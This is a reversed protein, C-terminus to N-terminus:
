ARRRRRVAAGALMCVGGAMLAWTSPEPVPTFNLMLNNGSQSVSFNSAPANSFYNTNIAFDSANFGGMITLPAASVLTWSYSSSVNFTSAATGTELGDSAVGVVQITFPQSPTATVNLAGDVTISSYDIGPAGTPNMISFQMGGNPGFGVTANSGFVLSGIVFTGGAGFTGRGGVVGGVVGSAGAFTITDSTTPAITGYGGISAGPNVVIQNHITVGTDVAFAGGSNLILNGSGLASPNSAILLTDANVTTTGSFSSNTGSLDLEGSTTGPEITTLQVNGAGTIMGIYEPDDNLQFTLTTASPIHITSDFGTSNLLGVITPMSGAAFYLDTGAMSLGNITPSMSTFNIVSGTQASLTGTGLASNTGVTLTTGNVNTGGSYSNCGELDTPGNVELAGPGCYDSINGFLTLTSASNSGGVTATGGEGNTGIAIPNYVSINTSLPTTLTTGDGLTLTGTGLPSSIIDGASGVGSAGVVLTTNGPEVTVGGCFTSCGSTLTLSNTADFGVEINAYGSIMGSLTLMNGGYAAEIYVPGSGCLSINNGITICSSGNTEFDTESGLMLTGTGLPGQSVSGESSMSSAGVFLGTYGSDVRVGGSFTSCGSTLYLSNPGGCTPAAIELASSGTIMGGLTLMKGMGEDLLTVTGSGCLSIDNNITFCSTGTTTFDNGNSLM